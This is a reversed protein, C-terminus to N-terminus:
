SFIRGLFGRRHRGRSSSSGHHRGHEYHPAHGTNHQPQQQQPNFVINTFDQQKSKGKLSSGCYPCSVWQSDIQSKCSHCTKNIEEGCSPCYKFNDQIEEQCNKCKM